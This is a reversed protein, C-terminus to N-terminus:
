RCRSRCGYLLEAMEDRAIFLGCLLLQPFIFAPM